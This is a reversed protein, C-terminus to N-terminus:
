KVKEFVTPPRGSLHFSGQTYIEGRDLVLRGEANVRGRYTVLHDYDLFIEKTTLTWPAPATQRDGTRRPQGSMTLQCHGEPRIEIAQIEGKTIAKWRGLFVAEPIPEVLVSKVDVLETLELRQAVARIQESIRQALDFGAQDYEIRFTLPVNWHFTIRWLIHQDLDYPDVLGTFLFKSPTGDPRQVPVPYLARIQGDRLFFCAEGNGISHPRCLRVETQMECGLEKIQAIVTDRLEEAAKNSWLIDIRAPLNNPDRLRERVLDLMTERSMLGLSKFRTVAWYDIFPKETDLVYVREDILNLSLWTNLGEVPQRDFAYKPIVGMVERLNALEEMLKAELETKALLLEYRMEAPGAESELKRSVQGIQQDLLKIQTYSLTVKRIIELAQNQSLKERSEMAARILEGLEPDDVRQVRDLVSPAGSQATAVAVLSLCLLSLSTKIWGAKM